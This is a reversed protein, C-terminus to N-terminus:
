LANLWNSEVQCVLHFPILTHKLLLNYIYKQSLRVNTSINDDKKKKKKVKLKSKNTPNAYFRMFQTELKFGFVNLRAHYIDALFAGAM